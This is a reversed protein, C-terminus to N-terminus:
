ETNEPSSKVLEEAKEMAKAGEGKAILELVDTAQGQANSSCIMLMAFTFAAFFLNPKM